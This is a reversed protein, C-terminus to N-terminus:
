AGGAPSGPGAPGPGPEPAGAAEGSPRLLRCLWRAAWGQKLQRPSVRLVRWGLVLAEAYKECDEEYHAGRVHGGRVFLGGEIELAIRQEVWAFDFRWKRTAHFRHERVPAPLGYARLHLALVLSWDPKKNKFPLRRAAPSVGTFRRQTKSIGM